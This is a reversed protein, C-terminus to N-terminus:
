MRQLERDHADHRQHSSMPAQLSMVGAKQKRLAEYHHSGYLIEDPM